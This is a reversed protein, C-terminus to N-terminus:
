HCSIHSRCSYKLLSDLSDVIPMTAMCPAFVPITHLRCCNCHQTCRQARISSSINPCTLTCIGAHPASHKSTSQHMSPANNLGTLTGAPPAVTSQHSSSNNPCTIAQMPHQTSIHELAPATTQAHSHMGAHHRTCPQARISSSNNPCTLRCPNSLVNISTQTHRCLTSLVNTHESAQKPM